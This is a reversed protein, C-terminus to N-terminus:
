ERFWKILRVLSAQSRVTLAHYILLFASVAGALLLTRPAWQNSIVQDLRGVGLRTIAAAITAAGTAIVYARVVTRSIMFGHYRSLIAINIPLVLLFAFVYSGAIGIVVDEPSLFKSSALAGVIWAGAVIVNNLLASKANQAAYFAKLMLNCVTMPILSLSLLMLVVGIFHAAEDTTEGHAFITTAVLTGTCVLLASIPILLMGARFIANNLEKGVADHDDTAHHASLRQLLVSALGVSGATFVALNIISAYLFASYGRGDYGLSKAASGAQTSLAAVVVNAVQFCAAAATVQLGTVATARLGLGRISFRWRVRFGTRHLFALLLITQLVTGALTAGGLLTVEWRRMMQPSNAQVAGVAIIPICSLIVILSSAMPLAAVASFRGRANMLQSAMAFLALFFIQPICWISLQVGLERQPASWSSGGMLDIISPSFVLLPVTIVLGFAAAAFLLLSGYENTRDESTKAHRMLQPVFVAAFTGGGLLLFLQNPLQNAINYSDAVLGTGIAAALALNRGFGIVTSALTGASAGLSTRGVGRSRGANGTLVSHM